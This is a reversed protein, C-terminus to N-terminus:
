WVPLRRPARRRLYRETSRSDPAEGGSRTEPTTTTTTTRLKNRLYPLHARASPVLRSPIAILYRTRVAVYYVNYLLPLHHLVTIAHLFLLHPLLVHVCSGHTRETRRARPVESQRRIVELKVRESGIGTVKLVRAEVTECRV